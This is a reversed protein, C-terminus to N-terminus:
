KICSFSDKYKKWKNDDVSFKFDLAVLTDRAMDWESDTSVSFVMDSFKVDALKILSFSKEYAEKFDPQELRKKLGGESRLIKEATKKGIRPVGPINDTRDGVMSKWSLYSYPPAERYSKTIPNWLSVTESHDNLIQIFDTDSSVIVSDGELGKALSYIVDDAEYNPHSVVSVPFFTDLMSIILKKQVRFSDWYAVEEDDKPKLVRNGKYNPDINLRHTPAGEVVFYVSSPQFDDVTKRLLRLLNYIIKTEGIAAPGPKGWDFRCRHIM